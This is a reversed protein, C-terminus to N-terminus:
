NVDRAYREDLALTVPGGGIGDFANLKWNAKCPSHGDVFRLPLGQAADAEVEWCVAETVALQVNRKAAYPAKVLDANHDVVITGVDVRCVRLDDVRPVADVFM